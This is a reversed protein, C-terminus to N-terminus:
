EVKSREMEEKTKDDTLVAAIKDEQTNDGNLIEPLEEPAGFSCSGISLQNNRRRTSEEIAMLNKQLRSDLLMTLLLKATM